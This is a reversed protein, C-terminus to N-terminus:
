RRTLGILQRELDGRDGYSLVAGWLPASNGGDTAAVILRTTAPNLRDHLLDTRWREAEEQALEGLGPELMLNSALAIHRKQEAFDKAYAFSARIYGRTLRGKAGEPEASTFEEVLDRFQELLYTALDILLKEKSPFHYLLGGKSVGAAEAIVTVPVKTGNEGIVLAAADLINRRTDEATRGATRGM